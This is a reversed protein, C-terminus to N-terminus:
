LKEESIMNYNNMELKIMLQWSKIIYKNTTDNVLFSTDNVLFSLTRYYM